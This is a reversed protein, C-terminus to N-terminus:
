KIADRLKKAWEESKSKEDFWYENLLPLVEFNIVSALWEVTAEKDTCFYSHGIRFGDGLTEDKSIVENLEKIRDILTGFRNDNSREIITQFGESDFAPEIEYFAFRRRLAYDIMALSRDATNMLGIIYVNKPVSFLENEYLLRLKKGRKDNEILMLLEGFIKSLNGRNIEDIIFFYDREIDDEANKCFEYFPGKTLEFGDKYPRFGMIFDEYSYSQHFQVMAVRKTDKMGIMSYALREAIFTKGVGPAGQLILNKKVRLLETLTEYQDPEMFVENFFDADSYEDYIIEEETTEIDATTEDEAILLELKQVYDTYNTIDTLAKMVAQGPHKWTGQNTWKVKRIHKYEGHEPAYSYDSEVIGRGIIEFLGKKVFIVDGIRIDHSFQWLALSDNRYSKSEGSLEKMKTRIDERTSYAKLDGLDGSYDWGIGMIGQSYYEEWKRAGQGPAYIWFHKENQERNPFEENQQNERREKLIDVWKYFIESALKDTMTINKGKETLAWVGRVSKDIIGEHVLYSRAWAVDNSFKQQRTKGRIENTVDDPLNLNAIIKNRAIEPTAEGGLQKLADVLPKFWQIFSAKSLGTDQKESTTRLWASHSLQPFSHFAAREDSFSRKCLEILKLYSEADPLQELDHINKIGISRTDDYELLFPRNKGDLNLFCFPRIWYLGMTINWKVREIKTVINYWKIFLNHSIRDPNDAFNIAAEYMNWLNDIDDLKRNAKFAFFWANMNNLVPIGDFNSPVAANVNIKGAIAKMLTIRNENTIGKNFAGFVTFPCIDDLPRGNEMFPYKSGIQKYAAELLSLLEARKEKYLLLKDAFEM